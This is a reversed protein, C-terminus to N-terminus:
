TTKELKTFLVNFCKCIKLIWLCIMIWLKLFALLHFKMPTTELICYSNRYNCTIINWKSAFEWNILACEGHKLIFHKPGCRWMYITWCCCLWRRYGHHMHFTYVVCIVLLSNFEFVKLDLRCPFSFYGIFLLHLKSM